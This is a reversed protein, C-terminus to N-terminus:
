PRGGARVEAASGGGADAVTEQAEDIVFQKYHEFRELIHSVYNVPELGRAFGYKVVPDTYVSRKSKQLLWYAVDAWVTDDGGHKKTLRRADMVHGAGTNYSALIFKVRETSDPIAENWYSDELWQLYRVAGRVNQEPNYPDSVGVERATGPMLQLLGMAGAWSRARPKFRSEQYTQAALLRWDWGIEAAFRRLLDDYDSLTGTEATLYKSEIRERYGQRDIFYRRYLQDFRPSDRHEEIWANFAERLQPANRRVAWAVKHTPGVVPHVMINTFYSEKLRALNEASVTYNVMGSSVLRIAAESSQVTDMEVIIVDGSMEDSIELLFQEYPSQDPLNVEEGALQTANYILRARVSVTDPYPDLPNLIAATDFESKDMVTDVAKPLDLSDTAQVLVPETEYLAHTFAVHASDAALPVVRAAVVDGVGQNLLHWLSDRDQVVHMRLALDHDDAFAQLLEYEYGLPQGRYLFYGTSNYTALAVLTDRETIADFDRAIPPPPPDTGEEADCAATGFLLALLLPVFCARLLSPRM